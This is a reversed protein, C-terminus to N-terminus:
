RNQKSQLDMKRASIQADFDDTNSIIDQPTGTYSTRMSVGLNHRNAVDRIRQSLYGASHAFKSRHTSNWTFTGSWGSPNPLQAILREVDYQTLAGSDGLRKRFTAILENAKADMQAAYPGYLESGYATFLAEMQQLIDLARGLEQLQETTKSIDAASTGKAFSGMVQLAGNGYSMPAYGRVRGDPGMIPTGIVNATGDAEGFSKIQEITKVAGTEPDRVMVFRAGSVPDSIFEHNPRMGRMVHDIVDQDAEPFANRVYDYVQRTYVSSPKQVPVMGFGANVVSPDVQGFPKTAAESAAKADYEIGQARARAADGITAIGVEAQKGVGIQRQAESLNQQWGGKNFLADIDAELASVPDNQSQYKNVAAAGIGTAAAIAGIIKAPGKLKKLMSPKIGNARSVVDIAEDEIQKLREPKVTARSLGEARLRADVETKVDGEFKRYAANNIDTPLGTPNAAAGEKAMNDIVELIRKRREADSAKGYAWKTGQWLKYTAYGAAATGGVGAAIKGSAEALTDSGRNRELTRFHDELSRAVTNDYIEGPKRPPVKWGTMRAQMEALKRDIQAETLGERAWNSVLEGVMKDLTAGRAEPTGFAKEWKEATDLEALTKNVTSVKTPRGTKPDTGSATVSPVDIPVFGQESATKTFPKLSEVAAKEPETLTSTDIEQGRRRRFDLVSEDQRMRPGEGVGTISPVSEIEKTDDYADLYGGITDLMLEDDAEDPMMMLGLSADFYRDDRERRFSEQMNLLGGRLGEKDAPSMPPANPEDMRASLDGAARSMVVEFDDIAPVPMGVEAARTNIAEKWKGFAVRNSEVWDKLLGGGYASPKFKLTEGRQEFPSINELAEATIRKTTKTTYEEKAKEVKESYAALASSINEGFGSLSRRALDGINQGAESIGTIQQGGSGQFQKFVSM